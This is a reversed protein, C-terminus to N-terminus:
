NTIPALTRRPLRGEQTAALLTVDHLLMSVPVNLAQCICELLESSVEKQGREIESLYGLSVQAASSVERLTQGSAARRSRLAQGMLERLVVPRTSSPREITVRHTLQNQMTGIQVYNASM